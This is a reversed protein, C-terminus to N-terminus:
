PLLQGTSEPKPDTLVPALVSVPQLRHSQPNPAGPCLGPFNGDPARHPIAQAKPGATQQSQFVRRPSRPTLALRPDPRGYFLPESDEGQLPAAKGLVLTESAPTM